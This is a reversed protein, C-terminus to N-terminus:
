ENNKNRKKSWHAKAAKAGVESKESLYIQKLRRTEIHMNVAM